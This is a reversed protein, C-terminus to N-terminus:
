LDPPDAEIILHQSANDMCPEKYGGKAINIMPRSMKRTAPVNMYRIFLRCQRHGPQDSNKLVVERSVRM